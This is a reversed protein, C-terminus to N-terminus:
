LWYPHTICSPLASLYPPFTICSPLAPLYHLFTICFSLAALYHLFTPCIPLASLYPLFTICFPLASTNILMYDVSEMVSMGQGRSGRETGLTSPPPRSAPLPNELPSPIGPTTATPKAVTPASSSSPLLDRALRDLFDDAAKEPHVKEM